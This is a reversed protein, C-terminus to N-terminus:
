EPTLFFAVLRLTHGNGLGLLQELFLTTLGPNLMVFAVSRHPKPLENLSCYYGIENYDADTSPVIRFIFTFLSCFPVVMM